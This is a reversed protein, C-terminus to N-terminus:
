HKIPALKGVTATLKSPDLPKPMFADCDLISAYADLADLGSCLVIPIAALAPDKRLEARLQVGNMVPMMLDLLILRPAGFEHIIALADRGNVASRVVYGKEALLEAVGDCCASDDDVVLVFDSV